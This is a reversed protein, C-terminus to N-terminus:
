DDKETVETEDNDEMGERSPDPDLALSELHDLICIATPCRPNAQPPSAPAPPCGEAKAEAGDPAQGLSIDPDKWRVPSSVQPEEGIVVKLTQESNIYQGDRFMGSKTSAAGGRSM